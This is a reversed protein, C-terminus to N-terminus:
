SRPHSPIQEGQALAVQCRKCVISRSRCCVQTCSWLTGQGECSLGWWPLWFVHVLPLCQLHWLVSFVPQREQVVHFFLGLPAMGTDQNCWMQPHWSCADETSTGAALQLGLLGQNPWLMHNRGWIVSMLPSRKPLFSWQFLM